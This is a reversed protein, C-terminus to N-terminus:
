FRKQVKQELYVVGISEVYGKLKRFVQRELVLYKNPFAVIGKEDLAEELPPEPQLDNVRLFFFYVEVPSLVFYVFNMVFLGNGGAYLGSGLLHRNM